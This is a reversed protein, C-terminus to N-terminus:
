QIPDQLKMMGEMDRFGLSAYVPRGDPTAELYIKGCGRARAEEVLREVVAHAVGHRRFPRRVYINMLYACRGSPNDPSPLEESLCLSGCGAEKGDVLALFALHSGGAVHRGYYGRNAEMLEAGPAGGFVHEVVEARWRLLDDLDTLPRIAIM